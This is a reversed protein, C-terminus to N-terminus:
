DGADVGADCGNPEFPPGVCAPGGADLCGRLEDTMTWGCAGDPQRECRATNFCYDTRRIECTDASFAGGEACLRGLSAGGCGTRVCARVAAPADEACGALTSLLVVAVGRLM